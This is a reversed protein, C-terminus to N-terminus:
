TDVRQHHHFREALHQFVQQINSYDQQAASLNGSQIDKELQDFAQVRPDSRHSSAAAQSSVTQSSSGLKPVLQQLAVYDSQAASLDGSQLDKGLKVFDKQIESRKSLLSNDVSAVSSATSIGSVSM